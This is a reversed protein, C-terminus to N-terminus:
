SPAELESLQAKLLIVTSERMSRIQVGDMFAHMLEIGRGREERRVFPRWRGFDEVTVLLQRRDVEVSLRIPGPSSDRYAHEIANAIAEGVAVLIGFRREQAFPLNDIEHEVIARVIPSVIPVASFTYYPVPAYRSLVFVAADDRNSAGNFVREQITAAPDSGSQPDLSAVVGMFREEGALFDRDNEILGDTYFVIRGGAPITFSWDCSEISPACGLPLGGGPLHRVLGGALALIPPLHGAVAYSLQSAAPDYIGFIATVMGISERFGVVGNVYELVAAPSEAVVAATRIAQRVEGMIVAADLGHGGVDGVSLAIRGDALTFADYWDGGVDAEDSAPRYAAHLEAGPIVPLREPLLARQFRDAVRHERLRAAHGAIMTALQLALLSVAQRTSEDFGDPADTRCMITGFTQRGTSLAETILNAAHAPAVPVDGAWVAYDRRDLAEIAVQIACYDCLDDVCLEAIQHLLTAIDTSTVFVHGARVLMELIRNLRGASLEIM